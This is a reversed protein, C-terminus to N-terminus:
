PRVPRPVLIDDVEVRVLQKKKKKESGTWARLRSCCPKAWWGAGDAGRKRTAKNKKIVVESM